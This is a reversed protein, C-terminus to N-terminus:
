EVDGVSFVLGIVFCIVVLVLAAFVMGGIHTSVIASIAWGVVLVGGIIMAGKLIMMLIAAIFAITNKMKNEKNM